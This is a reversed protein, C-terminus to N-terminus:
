IDSFPRNNAIDWDGVIGDEPVPQNKLSIYVNQRTFGKDLDARAMQTNEFVNGGRLQYAPVWFGSDKDFVKPCSEWVELWEEFSLTWDIDRERAKRKAKAYAHEPLQRKLQRAARIREKNRKYYRSQRARENIRRTVEADPTLTAGKRKLMTKRKRQLEPTSTDYMEGAKSLVTRGGQKTIKM